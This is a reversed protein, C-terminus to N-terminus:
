SNGESRDISRFTWSGADHYCEKLWDELLYNYYRGITDRGHADGEKFSAYFLGAPPKLSCCSSPLAIL